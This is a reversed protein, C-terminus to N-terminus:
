EKVKKGLLYVKWQPLAIQVKDDSGVVYMMKHPDDVTSAVQEAQEITLHTYPIFKIPKNMESEKYM